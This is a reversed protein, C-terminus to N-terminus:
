RRIGSIETDETLWLSKQDLFKEELSKREEVGLNAIKEHDRM